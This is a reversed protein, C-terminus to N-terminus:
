QKTALLTILRDIQEDKKANAELPREIVAQQDTGTAIHGNNTGSVIGSNNRVHVESSENSVTTAPEPYFYSMPKGLARAIREITGSRVDSASFIANISQPTVEMRDALSKQSIGSLLVLAKIEQGSM